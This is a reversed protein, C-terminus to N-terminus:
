PSTPKRKRYAALVLGLLVVIGTAAPVWSTLRRDSAAFIPSGAEGAMVFAAWQAPSARAGGAEIASLQARRLAEDPARGDGIEEYFRRMLWATESDSVDWLTAMVGRAGAHIFARSLSLLGEGRVLRGLQSRCAALVVLDANLSLNAIENVQLLGDDRDSATLLVASRRPVIEDVVAHAAFHLIRYRRADVTKLVMETAAPGVLTDEQRAGLLRRADHVEQSALALTGLSAAPADLVTRVSAAAIEPAAFALLPHPAHERPMQRVYALITASPATSLAHTEILWRDGSRLLAFPVRQLVGHPVLIIRTAGELTSAIPALLQDYLRAGLARIAEDNRGALLAQLLRIQPELVDQGPVPASTLRDPRVAWVFGRTPTVLYEVLAEDPRLMAAIEGASLARPYALSAYAPNERRTRLVLAEFEHEARQLEALAASRTVADPSAMIQKQIDSFRTGFVAEEKRVALVREDTLQARSEALLDALARSRAREAVELAAPASRDGAAAATDVLAEVLTEYPGVRQTMFAARESAAPITQRLREITAVVSDLHRAAEAPRGEALATRGMGWGARWEYEVNGIDRAVQLVRAFDARALDFARHEIAVLGLDNHVFLHRSV